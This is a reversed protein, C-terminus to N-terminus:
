LVRRREHRARWHHRAKEHFRRNEDTRTSPLRPASRPSGVFSGRDGPGDDPGALEYIDVKQASRCSEGKRRAADVIADVRAGQANLPARKEDAWVTGPAAEQRGTSGRLAALKDVVAAEVPSAVVRLTPSREFGVDRTHLSKRRKLKEQAGL